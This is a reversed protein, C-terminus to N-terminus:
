AGHTHPAGHAHPASRAHPMRNVRLTVRSTISPLIANAQAQTIAGAAVRKAIAAKKATILAEILGAESKGSTTSAVHALTNGSRLQERLQATSVGLYRAATSLGNGRGRMRTGPRWRAGAPIGVRQVEATVHSSLNAAAAALKGKDAAELVAILGAESKGSTADAIEALSKGSQLEKRLQAPSLRLYGAATALVGSRAHHASPQAAMVVAATTGALVAVIAVGLALKRKLRRDIRSLGHEIATHTRQMM